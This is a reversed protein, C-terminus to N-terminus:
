DGAWRLATETNPRPNVRVYDRKLTKMTTESMADIFCEGSAYQYDLIGFLPQRSIQLYPL